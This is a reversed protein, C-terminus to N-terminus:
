AILCPAPAMKGSVYALSLSVAAKDESAMNDSFPRPLLRPGDIQQAHKRCFPVPVRGSQRLGSLGGPM